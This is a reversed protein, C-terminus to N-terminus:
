CWGPMKLLGFCTFIPFLGIFLFLILGPMFYEPFPTGKLKEVTWELLRGDPAFFLIAGSILAGVGMLFMLILLLRVPLPLKKKRRIM